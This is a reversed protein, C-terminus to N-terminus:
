DGAPDPNIHPKVTGRSTVKIVFLRPKAPRILIKIRRIANALQMPLALASPSPLRLACYVFRIAGNYPFRTHHCSLPHCFPLPSLAFTRIRQAIRVLPGHCHQCSIFTADTLKFYQEYRLNRINIHNNYNYVWM